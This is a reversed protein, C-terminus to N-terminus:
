RHIKANLEPNSFYAHKPQKKTKDKNSRLGDRYDNWDDWYVKEYPFEEPHYIKDMMRGSNRRLKRSKM